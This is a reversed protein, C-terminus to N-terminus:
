AIEAYGEVNSLIREGITSHEEMLRREELTLPGPKESCGPQCVSRESTTCLVALHVLDQERKSLGM